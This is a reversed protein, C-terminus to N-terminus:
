TFAWELTLLGDGGYSGCTGMPLIRERDIGGRWRSVQILRDFRAGTPANEANWTPPRGGTVM